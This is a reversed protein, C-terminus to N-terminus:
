DITLESRIGLGPFINRGSVHGICVPKDIVCASSQKGKFNERKTENETATQRLERYVLQLLVLRAAFSKILQQDITDHDDSGVSSRCDAAQRSLRAAATDRRVNSSAAAASTAINIARRCTSQGACVSITKSDGTSVAVSRDAVQSQRTTIWLLGLWPCRSGDGLSFRSNPRFECM